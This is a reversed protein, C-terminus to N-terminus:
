SDFALRPTGGSFDVFPLPTKKVPSAPPPVRVLTKKGDPDFRIEIMGADVLAFFQSYAVQWFDNILGDPKIHLRVLDRDVGFWKAIDITTIERPRKVNKPGVHRVLRRKIEDRSMLKLDNPPV